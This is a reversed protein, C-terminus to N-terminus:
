SLKMCSFSGNVEKHNNDEAVLDARERAEAVEQWTPKGPHHRLWYDLIEVTCDENSYSNLQDLIDKPVGLELGFQYWQNTIQGKIKQILSSLIIPEEINLHFLWYSVYCLKIM